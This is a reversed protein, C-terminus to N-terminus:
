KEESKKLGAKYAASTLNKNPFRLKKVASKLGKELDKRTLALISPAYTGAYPNGKMEGRAM